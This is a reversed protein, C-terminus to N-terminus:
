LVCSVPGQLRALPITLVKKSWTAYGIEKRECRGVTPGAVWCNYWRRQSM